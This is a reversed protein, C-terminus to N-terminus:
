AASFRREYLDSAAAIVIAPALAISRMAMWSIAVMARRLLNEPLYNRSMPQDQSLRYIETPMERFFRPILPRRVEGASTLVCGTRGFERLRGTPRETRVFPRRRIPVMM